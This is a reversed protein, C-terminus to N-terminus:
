NKPSATAPPTPLIYGSPILFPLNDRHEVEQNFAKFQKLLQRYCAITKAHFLIQIRLTPRTTLEALQQFHARLQSVAVSSVTDGERLDVTELQEHCVLILDSQPIYTPPQIQQNLTIILIIVIATSAFFIDVLGVLAFAIVHSRKQNKM